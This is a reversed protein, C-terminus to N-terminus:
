NIYINADKTLKFILCDNTKSIVDIGDYTINSLDGKLILQYDTFYQGHWQSNEFTPTITNLHIETDSNITLSKLNGKLSAYEALYKFITTPRKSFFNFMDGSTISYQEKLADLVRKVNFNENAIDM